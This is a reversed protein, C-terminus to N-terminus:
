ATKGEARRARGHPRTPGPQRGFPAAAGSEGRRRGGHRSRHRGGRSGAVQGERPLGTVPGLGAAAGTPVVEEPPDAGLPRRDRRCGGIEGHSHPRHGDPPATIEM